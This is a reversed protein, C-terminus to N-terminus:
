SPTFTGGFLVLSYLCHTTFTFPIDVYRSDKMVESAEHGLHNEVDQEGVTQEMGTLENEPYVMKTWIDMLDRTILENLSGPADAGQAKLYEIGTPTKPNRVLKWKILFYQAVKRVMRFGTMFNLRAHDMYHYGFALCNVVTCAQLLHLAPGFLSVRAFVFAYTGGPTATFEHVGVFVYWIAYASMATVMALRLQLGLLSFSGVWNREKGKRSAGLRFGSISFASYVSGFFIYLLILIEVSHTCTANQGVSLVFTAVAIALLYIASVDVLDAV